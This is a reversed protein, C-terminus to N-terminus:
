NGSTPPAPPPGAPPNPVWVWRYAVTVGDGTLVYRGHPYVVEGQAPAAAPPPAAYTAPPTTYVVRPSSYGGYYQYPSAYPYYYSPAYYAPPAYGWYPGFLGIGGVIQNFVAFAGLALAADTAGSARATAPSLGIASMLLAGVVVTRRM